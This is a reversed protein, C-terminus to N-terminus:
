NITAKRGKTPFFGDFWIQWTARTSSCPGLHWLSKHPHALPASFTDHPSVTTWFPLFISLSVKEILELIKVKWINRNLAFRLPASFFVSALAKARLRSLLVDHDHWHLIWSWSELMPCMPVTGAVMTSLFSVNNIQFCKRCTVLMYMKCTNIGLFKMCTDRVHRSVHQPIIRMYSGHFLIEIM